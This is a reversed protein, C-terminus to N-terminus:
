KNCVKNYKNSNIDCLIHTSAWEKSNFISQLHELSESSLTHYLSCWRSSLLVLRLLYIFLSEFAWFVWSRIRRRRSAVKVSGDPFRVFSCRFVDSQPTWLSWGGRDILCSDGSLGMCSFCLLDHGVFPVSGNLFGTVVIRGIVVAPLSM